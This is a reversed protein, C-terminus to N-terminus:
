GYLFRWVISLNYASHALTALFVSAIYAWRSTGLYCLGLSSIVAGTVHLVLPLVLLGFGMLSGFVSTAIPGIVILLMIKEGTFFGLGSLGGLRLAERLNAPVLRRSMATYPAASKLTEETFAAALIFVSITYRLPINFLLVILGLQACLALPIALIGLGFAALPVRRMVVEVGDVVKAWLGRQGFISEERFIAASFGLCLLSVLLIPATSFVYEQLTFTDGELARVVLTMPSITSIAHINSFMAPFFLYGSLGVSLFVLFFTLEKFSRALM